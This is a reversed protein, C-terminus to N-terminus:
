LGLKLKILIGFVPLFYMYNHYVYLNTLLAKPMVGVLDVIIGYVLFINLSGPMFQRM